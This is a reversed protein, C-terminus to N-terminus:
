QNHSHHPINTYYSKMHNTTQLKINRYVVMKCLPHIFPHLLNSYEQCQKLNEGVAKVTQHVKDRALTSKSHVNLIKFPNQSNQTIEGM